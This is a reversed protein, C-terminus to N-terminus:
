PPSEYTFGDELTYASGDINRIVVDALFTPYAEHPGTVATITTSDVVVVDTCEVDGIWLRPTTNTVFGTGTATIATAGATTGEDPSVSVLVPGTGVSVQAFDLIQTGDTNTLDLHYDNGSSDSYDTLLPEYRETVRVQLAVAPFVLDETAKYHGYSASLVEVKEVGSFAADWPSDGAAGGTPTYAPDRGQDFRQKIVSVGAHLIPSLAEAEGPKLAPLIWGVEVISASHPYQISKESFEASKRFAYALPFKFHNTQLLPEPDLPVKDSVAAAIQTAGIATRQALLRANLHTTLVAATYELIYFLAPDADKLLSNATSATLPYVVKGAIFGSYDAM